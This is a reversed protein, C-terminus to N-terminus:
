LFALVINLQKFVDLLYGFLSKMILATNLLLTKYKNNKICNQINANKIDTSDIKM